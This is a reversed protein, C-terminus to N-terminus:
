KKSRSNKVCQKCVRKLGDATAQSSGFKNTLKISGCKNCQKYKGKRINLYYWDEYIEEYKNIIKEISSDIAQSVAQKSIKLGAALVEQPVEETYYNVLCVRETESFQCQEIVTFLDYRLIGVDTMMNTAKCRLLEKVHSTDFMDFQEYDIAQSDPLPSKFRIIGSLIDKTLIQDYKAETMTSRLIKVARYSTPKKLDIKCLNILDQYCAITPYKKHDKKYIKQATSLKSKDAKLLFDLKKGGDENETEVLSELSAERLMKKNFNEETYFVYQTAGCKKREREEPANLIYDALQTLQQCTRSDEALAAKRDHVDGCNPHPNFLNDFYHDIVEKKEEIIERVISVREDTREVTKNLKEYPLKM